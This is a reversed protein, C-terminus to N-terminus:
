RRLARTVVYGVGVAGAAALYPHERVFSSIVREAHRAGRRAQHRAEGAIEGVQHAVDRAGHAAADRLEDAGARVRETFSPGADVDADTTPGGHAHDVPEVPDAPITGAPTTPPQQSFTTM